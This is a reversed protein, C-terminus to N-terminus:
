KKFVIFKSASFNWIFAFFAAIIAGISAWIKESFGYQPGIVNVAYSAVSVNIILGIATIILFKFYERFQITEKGKEFTWFRNWFYSNTTAALFSFAKFVSYFPGAVIGFIWMLLNLVALDVFTNLTGVLFFKAAQLIPLFKKGILSVIFMAFVAIPPFVVPLLWLYPIKVEGFTLMGYFVIGNVFGIAAAIIADSKKM